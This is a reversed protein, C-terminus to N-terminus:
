IIKRAKAQSAKNHMCFPLIYNHPTVNTVKFEFFSFNNNDLNQCHNMLYWYFIIKIGEVRTGIKKGHKILDM